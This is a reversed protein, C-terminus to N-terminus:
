TADTALAERRALMWVFLSAACVEVWPHLSVKSFDGRWEVVVWYLYPMWVSIAVILAGKALTSADLGEEVELAGEAELVEDIRDLEGAARDMLLRNARVTRVEVTFAWLNFVLAGLGALMHWAPHLGFGVRGYGLVGAVVIFFAGFIAAPYAARKAFFENLEDLFGTSLDRARVAERLVRGTVIMFIILLSHLGVVLIATTLAVKVHLEVHGFVGLGAAALLAPVAVAVLATFYHVMRM